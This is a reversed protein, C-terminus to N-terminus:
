GVLFRLMLQARPDDPQVQPWRGDGHDGLLCREELGEAGLHSGVGLRQAPQVPLEIPLPPGVVRGVIVLSSPDLSALLAPLDGFALPLHLGSPALHVPLQGGRALAAMPLQGVPHQRQAAGKM